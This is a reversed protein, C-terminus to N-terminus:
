AQFRFHPAFRYSTDLLTAVTSVATEDTREVMRVSSM